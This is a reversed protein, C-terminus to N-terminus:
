IVGGVHSTRNNRYVTSSSLRYHALKVTVFNDVSQARLAHWIPNAILAMLEKNVFPSIAKGALFGTLRDAGGLRSGYKMGLGAVVGRQSLV